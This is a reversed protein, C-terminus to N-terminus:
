PRPSCFGGPLPELRFPVQETRWIAADPNVRIDRFQDYSIERLPSDKDLQRLPRAQAAIRRAFERVTDDDFEYRDVPKAAPEQRTAAVGILSIALTAFAALWFRHRSFRQITSRMGDRGEHWGM